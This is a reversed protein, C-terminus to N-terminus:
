ADISAVDPPPLYVAFGNGTLRAAIAEAIKPMLAIMVSSGDPIDAPALIPADLHRAGIRSKDEDVFFDVRGEIASAVLTGAISTGFIGFPRHEAASEATALMTKLWAAAAKVAALEARPPPSGLTETAAPRAIVTMERAVISTSCLVTELGARALLPALTAPTFHSCHDAITLDFANDRYYPVQIVLVGDPALLARAQVLTPLPDVIHELVHFCTICGYGPSLRELAGGHVAVVGPLAEIARTDKLNPDFGELAWLPALAHFASLTVGIGCGLDLMRGPSATSLHEKIQGLIWASRPQGFGSAPDFSHQETKTTSQHYLVYGGYIAETEARWAPDIRKQVTACDGCVAVAGGPVWPRCDSTVRPLASFDEVVILNQSECLHCANPM